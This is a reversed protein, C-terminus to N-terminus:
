GVGDNRSISFFSGIKNTQIIGIGVHHPMRAYKRSGDLGNFSNVGTDFPDHGSGQFMAISYKKGGVM